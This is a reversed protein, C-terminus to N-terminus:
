VADFLTTQIPKGTWPNTLPPLKLPPEYREGNRYYEAISLCQMPSYITNGMQISPLNVHWHHQATQKDKTILIGMAANHNRVDDQLKGFKGNQSGSAATVQVLIAREDMNDPKHAMMGFGDIGEDGVKVPNSALGDVLSVAWDQFKQYGKPTEALQGATEFSVPIGEVPLPVSLRRENILRLAFPLIDIGIVQRRNKLAADITTGCGCFPDLVIDGENSSAKIMREYLAIPKQTPYGMREKAMSNLMPIEWWDEIVKGRTHIEVLEEKTAGKWSGGHSGLKDSTFPVRIADPNFTWEEGKTYFFLNQHKKPYWRKAQSTSKYCWAIENRFHKEGFIADMVLKLYHSAYPDCHLYISGTNKLIRHMEFLREAMYSTYSLMKSHPNVIEFAQIVKSAPNAIASKIREVREASTDDWNWIDDFAKIQPDINRLGSGKFITNYNRNSNFPPDLCILDIYNNPFDRMIDLCDGYYLTNPQVTINAYKM